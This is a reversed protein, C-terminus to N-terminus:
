ATLYLADDKPEFLTLSADCIVRGAEDKIVGTANVMPGNSGAHDINISISIKQGPIFEPVHAIFRRSGLLFGLKARDTDETNSLKALVAAAQAMFELGVWTGISGSTFPYQNKITAEIVASGKDSSILKDVLIMPDSHPLMQSLESIM